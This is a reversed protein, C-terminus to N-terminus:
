DDGLEAKIQAVTADTRQISVVTYGAETLTHKMTDDSIDQGDKLQVAVLKNELSVFVEGAASEKKLAETIGNACFACVLGNVEMRISRAEATGFALSALVSALATRILINM